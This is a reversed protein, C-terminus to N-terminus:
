LISAYKKYKSTTHEQVTNGAYKHEQKHKNPQLIRVPGQQLQKCKVLM